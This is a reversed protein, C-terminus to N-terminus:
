AGDDNSGGFGREGRAGAVSGPDLRRDLEGPHGSPARRVVVDLDEAEGAPTRRRRRARRLDQAGPGGLGPQRECLRPRVVAPRLLKPWPPVDPVDPRPEPSSGVHAVSLREAVSAENAPRPSLGGAPSDRGPEFGFGRFPFGRGACFGRGAADEPGVSPQDRGPSSPVAKAPGTAPPTLPGAARTSARAGAPAGAMGRKPRAAAGAQTTGPARTKASTASRRASSATAPVRARTVAAARSTSIVVASQGGNGGRPVPASRGTM